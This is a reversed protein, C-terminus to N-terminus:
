ASVHVQWSQRKSTRVPRNRSAGSTPMRVYATFDSAPLSNTLRSQSTRRHLHRHIRQRRTRPAALRLLEEGFAANRELVDIVVKGVVGRLIPDHALQIGGSGVSKREHLDPILDDFPVARM